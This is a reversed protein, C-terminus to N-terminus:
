RGRKRGRRFLSVIAGFVIMMISLFLMVLLLPHTVALNLAWIFIDGNMAILDPAMATVCGLAVNTQSPTYTAAAPFVLAVLSVLVAILSMGFGKTKKEKPETASTEAPQVGTFKSTNTTM